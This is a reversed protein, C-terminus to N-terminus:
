SEAILFPHDDDLVGLNNLADEDHCLDNSFELEAKFFEKLTKDFITLDSNQQDETFSTEIEKALEIWTM